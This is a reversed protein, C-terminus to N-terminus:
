SSMARDLVEVVHLVGVDSGQARLGAAIQLMCGPNTSVVAEARTSLIAAVKSAQLADAYEPQTVNYTGASGCCVDSQPMELLTLGEVGRLLDRPQQRIRQAHALHCADQYTVRLPLRGLRAPLELSAIYETVDRVASACAAARERWAPDDALLHGYEKM